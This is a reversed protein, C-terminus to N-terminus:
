GRVLFNTVSVGYVSILSIFACTDTLDFKWSVGRGLVDTLRFTVRWSLSGPSINNSELFLYVFRFNRFQRFNGFKKDAKLIEYALGTKYFSLDISKRKTRSPLEQALRWVRASKLKYTILTLFGSNFLLFSRDIRDPVISFILKGSLQTSPGKQLLFVYAHMSLKYSRCEQSRHLIEQSNMKFWLRGM